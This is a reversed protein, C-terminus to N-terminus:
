WGGGGTLDEEPAEVGEPAVSDVERLAFAELGTLDVERRVVVEPKVLDAEPLVGVELAALHVFIAQIVM